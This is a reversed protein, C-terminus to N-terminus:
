FKKNFNISFRPDSSGPMEKAKGAGVGASWQGTSDTPKGMNFYAGPPLTSSPAKGVSIGSNAGTAINMKGKDFSIDGPSPPQSSNPVKPIGGPAPAAFDTSPNTQDEAQEPDDSEKSQVMDMIKRIIEAERMIKNLM